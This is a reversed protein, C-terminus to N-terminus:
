RGRLADALTAAECTVTAGPDSPDIVRVVWMRCYNRARGPLVGGM